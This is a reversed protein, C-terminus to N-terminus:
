KSLLNKLVTYKARKTSNVAAGVTSYATLMYVKHIYRKLSDATRCLTIMSGQLLYPTYKIGDTRLLINQSNQLYVLYMCIKSAFYKRMWSLDPNVRTGNTSPDSKRSGGTAGILNCFARLSYVYCICM